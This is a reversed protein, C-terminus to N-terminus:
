QEKIKRFGLYISQSPTEKSSSNSWAAYSKNILILSICVTVLSVLLCAWTQYDFPRVFKRWDDREKPAGSFIHIEFSGIPGIFDKHVFDLPSNLVRRM